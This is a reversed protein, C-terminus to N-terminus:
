LGGRRLPGPGVVRWIDFKGAVAVRNRSYRVRGQSTNGMTLGAPM